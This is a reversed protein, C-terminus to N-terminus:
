PLEIITVEAIYGDEAHGDKDHGDKDHGDKDHGGQVQGGENMRNFVNLQSGPYVNFGSVINTGFGPHPHVVSTSDPHTGTGSVSQGFFATDSHSETNVETGADLVNKRLVKFQIPGKGGNFKGNKDYLKVPHASDTGFFADNSPVVMVIYSLYKSKPNSPDVTFKKFLTNGPSTPGGITAQQSGGAYAIFIDTMCPKNINYVSPDGSCVNPPGSLLSLNSTDGSVGDEAIHQIGSSAAQGVTFTQFGGDHLGIWPRMIWAGDDPALNRISIQVTAATAHGVCFTTLGSFLLGLSLLHKM